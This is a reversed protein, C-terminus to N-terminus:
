ITTSFRNGNSFNENHLRIFSFESGMRHSDAGAASWKVTYSGAALAKKPMLMMSKGDRGMQSSHAIQMPAHDTMGPMGTM